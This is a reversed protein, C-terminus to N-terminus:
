QQRRSKRHASRRASRSRKSRKNRKHSASRRRRRGGGQTVLDIPEKEVTVGTYNESQTKKPANGLAKEANMRDASLSHATAVPAGPTSAAGGMEELM